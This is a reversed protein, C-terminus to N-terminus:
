GKSPNLDELYQFFDAPNQRGARPDDGGEGRWMETQEQVRRRDVDSRAERERDELRKEVMAELQRKTHTRKLKEITRKRLEIHSRDEAAPKKKKTKEKAIKAKAVPKLPGQRWPPLGAM